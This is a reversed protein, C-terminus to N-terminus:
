ALVASEAFRGQPRREAARANFWLCEVRKRAGDAMADREIRHWDSYLDAYLPSDYGSLMVMGCVGHLTEALQMHDDDTMEWAYAANGRQMNRTAHVYPPDLYYLTDTRDHLFIVEVAPRNEIVVGRMREIFQPINGPFNAWDHAPTTGSRNSNSRFGTSHRANTSASGFGAFSRFITRRAKEIPDDIVELDSEGCQEFETRAFPTLSLLHALRAAQEPERLVRFVNVVTDWRDNYVEAYARPKRLLVSAAGGFPEVYIRHAPMQSIIWPALMWKGGHYRLAPRSVTM